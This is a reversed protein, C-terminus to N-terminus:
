HSFFHWLLLALTIECGSTLCAHVYMCAPTSLQCPARAQWFADYLSEGTVAFIGLGGLWVLGITLYLLSLVKSFRCGVMYLGTLPVWVSDVPKTHLVVQLSLLQVVDHWLFDETQPILWCAHVPPSRYLLCDQDWIIHPPAGTIPSGSKSTIPWSNAPPPTASTRRALCSGCCYRYRTRCTTWDRPQLICGWWCSQMAVDRWRCQQPFAVAGGAYQRAISLAIAPPNITASAQSLLIRSKGRREFARNCLLCAREKM